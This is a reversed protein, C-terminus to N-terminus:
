RGACLMDGNGTMLMEHSEAGDPQGNTREDPKWQGEEAERCGM